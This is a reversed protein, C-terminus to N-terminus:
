IIISTKVKLQLQASTAMIYKGLALNYESDQFKNKLIKCFHVNLHQSIFGSFSSAIHTQCKAADQYKQFRLASAWLDWRVLQPRRGLMDILSILLAPM